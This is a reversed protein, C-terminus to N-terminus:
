PQSSVLEQEVPTLSRARRERVAAFKQEYHRVWFGILPVSLTLPVVWVIWSLELPLRQGVNNVLFATVVAVYSGLMREMHYFWWWNKDTSPKLYSRIDNGTDNFLLLGFVLGPIAFGGPMWPNIVQMLTLIGWGIFGISAGLAIGSGSWDLWTPRQGAQPRKRFLVRYGSFV